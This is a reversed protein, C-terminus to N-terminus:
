HKGNLAVGHHGVGNKAVGNHVIGNDTVGHEVVGNNVVGNNVVRDGLAHRMRSAKTRLYFDNESTHGVEIPVRADIQVNLRALQEIKDPNNTLLRISAARVDRLIEAAIEYSREDAGHGLALNADVTDLGEDQLNYARLKEALGIGRGEQRLYVVVGADEAAILRMAEQLQPGCDCRRSGMVDGTFCESHVRALVGRRGEIRGRVFALHEKTDHNNEYTILQFDGYETPIRATALRQVILLPKTETMIDTTQLM